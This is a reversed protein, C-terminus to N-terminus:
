IEYLEGDVKNKLEVLNTEELFKHIILKRMSVDRKNKKVLDSLKISSNFYYPYTELLEYNLQNACCIIPTNLCIANILNYNLKEENELNIIAEATNILNILDNSSNSEVFIIEETLGMLDIESLVKRNIYKKDIAIVIKLDVKDSMMSEIISVIKEENLFGDLLIYKEYINFREYVYAKSIKKNYPLKEKQIPYVVISKYNKDGIFEEIYENYFYSPVIIIGDKNIIKEIDIKITKENLIIYPIRKKNKIDTNYEKVLRNVRTSYLKDM